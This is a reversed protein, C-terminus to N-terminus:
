FCAVIKYMVVYLYVFIHINHTFAHMHIHTHTHKTHISEGYKEELPYNKESGSSSM